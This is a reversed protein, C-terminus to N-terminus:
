GGAPSPGKDNTEFYATLLTKDDIQGIKTKHTVPDVIRYALRSARIFSTAGAVM